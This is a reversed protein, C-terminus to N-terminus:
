QQKSSYHYYSQNLYNLVAAIEQERWQLNLTSQWRAIQYRIDTITKAKNNARIHVSSKHCVTCHNEYLLRGREIDDAYASPYNLVLGISFIRVFAKIRNIM